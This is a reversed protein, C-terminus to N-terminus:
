YNAIKQHKIPNKAQCRVTPSSYRIMSWLQIVLEPAGGIKLLLRSGMLFVVNTYPVMTSTVWTDTKISIEAATMAM